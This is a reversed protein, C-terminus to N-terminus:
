KLVGFWRLLLQFGLAAYMGAVFVLFVRFRLPPPRWDRRDMSDPEPSSM